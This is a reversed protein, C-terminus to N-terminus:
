AGHRVAMEASPRTAPLALQRTPILPGAQRVLDPKETPPKSPLPPGGTRVGFDLYGIIDTRDVTRAASQNRPM